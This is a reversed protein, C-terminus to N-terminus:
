SKLFRIYSISNYNYFFFCFIVKTYNLSIPGDSIDGRSETLIRRTKDCPQQIIKTTQNQSNTSNTNTSTLEANSLKIFNGGLLAIANTVCYFIVFFSRDRFKWM